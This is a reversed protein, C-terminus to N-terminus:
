SRTARVVDAVTPGRDFLQALALDRRGQDTITFRMELPYESVVQHQAIPENMLVQERKALRAAHEDCLLEGRLDAVAGVILITTARAQCQIAASQGMGFWCQLESTSSLLELLVSEIAPPLQFNKQRLWAHEGNPLRELTLDASPNPPM